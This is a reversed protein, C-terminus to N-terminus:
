LSGPMRGPRPASWAPCLEGASVWRAQLADSPPYM